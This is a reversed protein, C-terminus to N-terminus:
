GEGLAFSCAMDVDERGEARAGIVMVVLRARPALRAIAALVAPWTRRTAHSVPATAADDSTAAQPEVVRLWGSAAGAAVTVTVALGLADLAAVEGAVAGDPPVPPPSAAHRVAVSCM